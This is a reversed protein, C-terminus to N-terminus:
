YQFFRVGTSLTMTAGDLLTYSKKLKQWGDTSTMTIRPLVTDYNLVGRSRHKEFLSTDVGICDEWQMATMTSFTLRRDFLESSPICMKEGPCEVNPAERHRVGLGKYAAESVNEVLLHLGVTYQLTVRDEGASPEHSPSSGVSAIIHM